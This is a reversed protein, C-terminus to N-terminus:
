EYPRKPRMAQRITAKYNERDQQVQKNWLAIYFQSGEPRKLKQAQCHHSYWLNLNEALEPDEPRPHKRAAILLENVSLPEPAADSGDSNDLRKDKELSTVQAMQDLTPLDEM